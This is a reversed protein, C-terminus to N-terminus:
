YKDPSYLFLISSELLRMKKKQIWIRNKLRISKQGDEIYNHIM